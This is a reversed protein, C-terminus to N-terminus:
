LSSHLLGLLMLLSLILSLKPFPPINSFIFLPFPFLLLLLSPSPFLCFCTYSFCSSSFVISDGMLCVLPVCLSLSLCFPLSLMLLCFLLSCTREGHAHVTFAPLTIIWVQAVESVLVSKLKLCSTCLTRRISEVLVLMVIQMLPSKRVSFRRSCRIWAWVQIYLQKRLIGWAELKWGNVWGDM